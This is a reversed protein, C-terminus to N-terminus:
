ILNKTMLDFARLEPKPQYEADTIDFIGQFLDDIFHGLVNKAHDLSGNTFILKRMNLNELEKRLALDKKMFSLDIDHVYKLFEQPPIDHHIM